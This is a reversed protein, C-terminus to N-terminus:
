GSASSPCVGRTGRQGPRASGARTWTSCGGRGAAVKDKLNTLVTEARAVRNPDQKHGVTQATRRDGAKLRALDRRTQRHGTGIDPGLAEALQRATWTRDRALREAWRGTVTARRAHDPEPGPTDPSFAAPGRDRFGKLASRVTHPHRGPHAAIAPPSWGDASMRVMELRDRSVAPLDTRRLAQLEARQSDSPSTRLM